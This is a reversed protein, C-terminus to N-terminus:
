GSQCLRRESFAQILVKLQYSCPEQPLTKRLNYSQGLAPETYDYLYKMPMAWCPINYTVLSPQRFKLTGDGPRLVETKGVLPACALWQGLGPCYTLVTAKIHIDLEM